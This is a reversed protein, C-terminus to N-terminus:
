TRTQQTNVNGDLFQLLELILIGFMRGYPMVLHIFHKSCFEFPDVVLVENVWNARVRFFSCAM